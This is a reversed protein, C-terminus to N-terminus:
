PMLSIQGSSLASEYIISLRPDHFSGRLQEQHLRSGGGATAQPAAFAYCTLAQKDPAYVFSV